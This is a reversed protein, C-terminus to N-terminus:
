GTSFDSLDGVYLTCGLAEIFMLKRGEAALVVTQAPPQTPSLFWVRRLYRRATGGQLPAGPPNQASFWSQKKSDAGWCGLNQKQAGAARKNNGNHAWSINISYVCTSPHQSLVRRQASVTPSPCQALCYPCPPGPGQCRIQEDQPILPLWTRSLKDSLRSFHSILISLFYKKTVNQLCSVSRWSKVPAPFRHQM